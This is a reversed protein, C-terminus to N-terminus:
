ETTQDAADTERPYKDSTFSLITQSTLLNCLGPTCNYFEKYYLMLWHRSIVPFFVYNESCSLTWPIECLLFIDSYNLKYACLIRFYCIKLIIM